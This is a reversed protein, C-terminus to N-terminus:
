QNNCANVIAEADYGCLNRLEKVTGHSVWADPVGLRTVAINHGHDNIWEEVASGFGGTRVGDEVTIIRKHRAAIDALLQDDLPKAWIMDYVAVPNDEKALQDAAELAEKYVPGVTLVAIDADSEERLTRGRGIRIKDRPVGDTIANGRPYRIALPGEEALSLEMMEDLMAADSPVGITMGPIMRLYSIDFLGHHTIGDEGVIGARDICFTVPLKQIAVDHIINDYARQLFSSYIAVFPHKGASALGGAFTVAHGESIGVDYVREPMVKQLRDVSTGSSMAATIGVVDPNKRALEVLKDGFVEQWKPTTSASSLREGTGPNFKGPAHWDSPNKEAPTYGRGKVTHLHLIRPGKMDKIENLVKVVKNVDNGDFPGFYRINLGEFINQQRSILAKLANGFRLAAGRKNENILGHRRLTNYLKYRIRNYRSTTTLDSFYRHLAGVNPSISMDNDNLIILLNNPNISANNIGEFALGNGISADGILAVTHRNEHGPTNMDATAMGLAASIANGAHGCVFTDYISESPTPFGSIGGLKRQGAFAKRRGTLIKHAYAQHGVDFVIRDEPTNFVYHLATIIDVAGMSSGFHGPNDSLGSIITQRIESCVQPLLSERLKRLDAPSEITDLLPTMSPAQPLNIHNEQDM